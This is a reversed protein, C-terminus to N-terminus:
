RRCPERCTDPCNRHEHTTLTRSVSYLCFERCPFGFTDLFDEKCLMQYLERTMGEFGMRDIARRLIKVDKVKKSIPNFRGVVKVTQVGMEKFDFLGCLNCYSFTDLFDNTFAEPNTVEQGEERESDHNASDYRQIQYCFDCPSSLYSQFISKHEISRQWNLPLKKMKDLVHFRIQANKVFQKFPLNEDFTHHFQCFGELFRCADNLGIIEYIFDDGLVSVMDRIEEVTLQTPFVIRCAGLQKYFEATRHNLVAGFLSVHLEAKIQISQALVFLAPDAIIFADMGWQDIQLMTERIIELQWGSYTTANIALFLPVDHAHCADILYKLDKLSEINARNDEGSSFSLYSRGRSKWKSLLLGCYIERAGAEVLPPVEEPSNVPSLIKM